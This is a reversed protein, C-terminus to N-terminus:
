EKKLNILTKAWESAVPIGRLPAVPVRVTGRPCTLSM